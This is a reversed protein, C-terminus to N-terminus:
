PTAIETVETANSPNPDPAEEGIGLMKMKRHAALVLTKDDDTHEVLAMSSLNEM